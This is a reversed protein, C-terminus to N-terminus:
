SRSSAWADSTAAIAATKSQGPVPWPTASCTPPLPAAHPTRTRTSACAFTCRSRSTARLDVAKQAGDAVHSRMWAVQEASCWNPTVGDAYEGSLRLMQEGMAAMYVPVPPAKIGLQVGHLKVGQGEFDVSEGAFLARLTQLYERSYTLPSVKPLDLQKILAPSPYAGLGIGLSFKGDCVENLSASEAALTPVSWGPFPIVSTGVSLGGPTIDTTAEWWDRCIQFISRRTLGAPDM